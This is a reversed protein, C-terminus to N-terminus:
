ATTIDDVCLKKEQAIRLPERSIGRTNWLANVLISQHFSKRCNVLNKQCVCFCISEGQKREMKTVPAYREIQVEDIKAM